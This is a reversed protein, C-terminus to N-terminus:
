QTALAARLNAWRSVASRLSSDPQRSTERILAAGQQYYEMAQSRAGLTLLLEAFEMCTGALRVKASRQISESGPAERGRSIRVYQQAAQQLAGSNGDRYADIAIFLWPRAESLGCDIGRVAQLAERAVRAAEAIQGAQTHLGALDSSFILVRIARGKRDDPRARQLEAAAKQVLKGAEDIKRRLYDGLLAKRTATYVLPAAGSIDPCRFTIRCPGPLVPLFGKFEWEGRRNKEGYLVYTASGIQAQVTTPTVGAPVENLKVTFIPFSYLNRNGYDALREPTPFTVELASAGPTPKLREILKALGEQNGGFRELEDAITEWRDLDAILYQHRFRRIDRELIKKAAEIQDQLAKNEARALDRELYRTAYLRGQARRLVQCVKDFDYADLQTVMGNLEDRSDMLTNCSIAVRRDLKGKPRFGERLKPWLEYEAWHLVEREVIRLVLHSGTVNLVTERLWQKIHRRAQLRFAAKFSRLGGLPMGLRQMAARHAINRLNLDLHKRVHGTLPIKHKAVLLESLGHEETWRVAAREALEQGVVGLVDEPRIAPSGGTLKPDDLSKIGSLELLTEGAQEHAERIQGFLEVERLSGCRATPKGARTFYSGVVYRRHVDAALYLGEALELLRARDPKPGYKVALVQNAAKQVLRLQQELPKIHPLIRAPDAEELRERGGVPPTPSPEVTAEGPQLAKALVAHGAATALEAATRGASDKRTEDAGAGVLLKALEAHGRAAAAHLPTRGDADPQSVTPCAAGRREDLAAAPHELASRAKDAALLQPVVKAHGAAAAVHLPTQGRANTARVDAGSRLLFDATTAQGSAAAEFLAQEVSLKGARVREEVAIRPDGELAVGPLASHRSPATVIVEEAWVSWLGGCYAYYHLMLRHDREQAIAAWHLPFAVGPMTARSADRPAAQQSQVQVRGDRGRNAKPAQGSPTILTGQDDRFYAGTYLPQGALGRLEVGALLDEHADVRRAPVPVVGAGPLASGVVVQERRLHEVDAIRLVRPAPPQAVFHVEAAGQASMPGSEASVSAILTPPYRGDTVFAAYPIHQGVVFEADGDRTTVTPATALDGDGDVYERPAPPPARFATGDPNRFAFRLTLKRSAATGLALRCFVTVGKRNDHVANHQCWVRQFALRRLSGRAVPPPQEGASASAVGISLALAALAQRARLRLM